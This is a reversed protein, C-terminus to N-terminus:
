NLTNKKKLGTGNYYLYKRLAVINLLTIVLQSSLLGWLYGEVGFIPIAFFVFLLRIGLSILSFLFTYLMKGLGHLISTLTSTIYLFPCIFSLTVIFKGAMESNFLFKGAWQGFFLFGTTCVLGFYFCYSISKKIATQIKARNGTADAESVVPLLLVSISNTLASPFLILPLAMGTLVGYTSLAQSTSLGFAQLRNPIYIAEISQLLNITIRNATLPISLVLLLKATQLPNIKKIFSLANQRSYFRHYIAALSILMAAVEGVLIGLVAFAITIGHGSRVSIGYVVYVFAVRVFQEVLQTIAPIKTEKIGYFYGNVCSHVSGFPISIAIIRLLPACRSELLIHTAISESYEYLFYANLCSLGLSILFGVLLIRASSKYDHTTTESAVYKSIATQIGAASFSFSLAMAPAILQYIGMGEEGFTHSLFVRYFFGIIRSAFGTLTLIITGTILPNTKKM